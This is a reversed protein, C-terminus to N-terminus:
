PTVEAVLRVALRHIPPDFPTRTRTQPVDVFVMCGHPAAGVSAEVPLEFEVSVPRVGTLRMMERAQDAPGILGSALETLLEELPRRAAHGIM